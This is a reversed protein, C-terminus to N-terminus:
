VKIAPDLALYDQYQTKGSNDLRRTFVLCAEAQAKSTDIELRRFAFDGGAPTPRTGTVSQIGSSIRGILGGGPQDKGTFYLGAFFAAALAVVALCGLLLYRINQNM